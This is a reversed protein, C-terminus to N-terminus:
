GEMLENFLDKTSGAFKHGRGEELEKIAEVSDANLTYDPIAAGQLFAIVYQIKNEPIEDILNKAMEKATM